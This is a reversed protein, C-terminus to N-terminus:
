LELPYCIMMEEVFHFVSARTIQGEEIGFSLCVLSLLHNGVVGLSALTRNRPIWASMADPVSSLLFCNCGAQMAACYEYQRVSLEAHNEYRGQWINAVKVSKHKGILWTNQLM